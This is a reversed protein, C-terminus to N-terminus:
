MFEFLFVQNIEYPFSSIPSKSPIETLNDVLTFHQDDQIAVWLEDRGESTWIVGMARDVEADPLRRRAVKGKALTAFDSANLSLNHFAKSQIVPVHESWAQALQDATPQAM